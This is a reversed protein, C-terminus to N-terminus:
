RSPHSGWPAAEIWIGIRVIVMSVFFALLRERRRELDYKMLRMM